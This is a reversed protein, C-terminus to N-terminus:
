RVSKLLYCYHCHWSSQRQYLRLEWDVPAQPDVLDIALQQLAETQVPDFGYALSVHLWTKLRLPSPSKALSAFTHAVSQFWPATLELGHWDDNFSLRDVRAVPIPKHSLQHTLAMKLADVYGVASRETDKFFGTLTCHPMYQHATNAGYHKLSEKFYTELQEGLEGVPCAYLIFETLKNTM